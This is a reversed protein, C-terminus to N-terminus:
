SVGKFKALMYGLVSAIAGREAWRAWDIRAKKEEKHREICGFIFDHHEEVKTIMGKKDYTGLLKDRIEKVQTAMDELLGIKQEHEAVKRALEATRAEDIFNEM